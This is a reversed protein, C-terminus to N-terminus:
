RFDGRSTARRTLHGNREGVCWGGSCEVFEGLKKSSVGHLCCRLVNYGELRRRVRCRQRWRAVVPRAPRAAGDLRDRPQVVDLGSRGHGRSPSRGRPGRAAGAARRGGGGSLLVRTCPASSCRLHKGALQVLNQGVLARVHDAPCRRAFRHSLSRMKWGAQQVWGSLMQQCHPARRPPPHAGTTSSAPGRFKRDPRCAFLRRAVRAARGQGAGGGSGM